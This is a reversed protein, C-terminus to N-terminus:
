TNNLKGFLRLLGGHHCSSDLCGVPTSADEVHLIMNEIGTVRVSQGKKFRVPSTGRWVEGNVTLQTFSGSKGIVKGIQGILAEAGTAVPRAMASMILRYMWISIGLIFAYLVAAIPFPFIWFLALGFVPLLLVLHCM